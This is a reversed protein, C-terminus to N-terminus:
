CALINTIEKLVRTTEDLDREYQHRQQTDITNRSLAANLGRVKYMMAREIVRLENVPVEITMTM